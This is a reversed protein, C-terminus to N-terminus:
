VERDYSAKLINFKLHKGHYATMSAVTQIAGM